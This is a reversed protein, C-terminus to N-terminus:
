FGFDLLFQGFPFLFGAEDAVTPLGFNHLCFPATAVGFAFYPEIQEQRVGGFPAQIVNDKMFKQVQSDSVVILIKHSQHVLIHGIPFIDALFQIIKYQHRHFLAKAALM